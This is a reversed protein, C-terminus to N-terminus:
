MFYGYPVTEFRLSLPNIKRRCKISNTLTFRESYSRVTLNKWDTKTKKQIFSQSTSINKEYLELFHKLFNPDSSANLDYNLCLGSIHNVTTVRNNKIFNVTYQKAGTGFYSIIKGDYVHKFHGVAPSLILPMTESKDISFFISDCNVHYITCSQISILDQMHKYICQRAYATIQSGVYVNYKLNPPLKFCNRTVLVMCILDNLCHIEKIENQSFYLKSLEDQNNIFLVQNRDQRQSFKGFFSNAAMKYFNRKPENPKVNEVTIKENPNVQLAENLINCCHTKEELSTLGKFCDSALTKSLNLHQVFNKFLFASSFYVHMEFITKIKYGLSMAFEIETIMYTATLSREDDSHNCKASNSQIESCIKCLTLVTKGNKLRYPLFPYKLNQPPIINVLAAGMVVKKDVLIQNQEMTVRQLSKGILVEYKGIMFRNVLCCHSYLGNVDLAWFDEGPFIHQDFKLTFTEVYAGRMADRPKLRQLPHNNLYHVDIFNKLIPDTKMKERFRCEWQIEIKNITSHNALLKYLKLNFKENIDKYSIGFPNISEPKANPYLLCNDYHGHVAGACGNFMYATNTTHCYLDPIAEAYFVQGAKCNFAASFERDPYRYEMFSTYVHEIRSVLSPNIGYEHDVCYIPVNQLYFYAFINYILGSLSCIPGNFPNILLTEIRCYDDASIEAKLSLKIKNQLLFSEQSFKLMGLTLLFLKQNVYTILEKKLNWTKQKKDKAYRLYEEKEKRTTDTDFLDFYALKNPQKGIYHISNHQLFDFPFFLPSFVVGFQRGLENESGEVYKNSSVFRLDLEQIGMMIISNGRRIVDPCFGHMVLLNLLGM